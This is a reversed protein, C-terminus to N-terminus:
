WGRWLKTYLPQIEQKKNELVDLTTELLLKEINHQEQMEPGYINENTMDSTLGLNENYDIYKNHQSVEQQIEKNLDKLANQSKRIEYNIIDM